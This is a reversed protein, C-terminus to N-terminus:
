LTSPENRATSHHHGLSISGTLNWQADEQQSVYQFQRPKQGNELIWDELGGATRGSKKKM